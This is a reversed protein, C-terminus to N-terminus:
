ADMYAFPLEMVGLLRMESFSSASYEVAVWRKELLLGRKRNSEFNKVKRCRMCSTDYVLFGM